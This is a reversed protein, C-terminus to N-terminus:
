GRMGLRNDVREANIVLAGEFCFHKSSDWASLDIGIIEGYGSEPGLYGGRMGCARM